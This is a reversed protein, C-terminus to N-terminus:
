ELTIQPVSEPTVSKFLSFDAKYSRKDPPANTNIGVTTRPVQRAVAEALDKLQYNGENRGVNVALFESGDEADHKIAWYIACTMDEVDILPRWFSGDSLVTIERSSVTCAVFDNLVLDMRLRDSM